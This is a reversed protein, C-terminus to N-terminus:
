GTLRRLLAMGNQKLWKDWKRYDPFVRLVETYFERGHNPYKRHCLEHVVVSDLAESPALMLLCNFNLNGKVSCSGWRSRQSRITIRGYTVGVQGAYYAVREPIVKRAQDALARIEEATLKEEAPLAELKAMHKEIWRRHKELFIDIQAQSTRRPARVILGTSKIELALTKRNSRILQYTM